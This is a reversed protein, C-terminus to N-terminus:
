RRRRRKRPGVAAFRPRPQADDYKAALAEGHADAAALEAQRLRRLRQWPAETVSGTPKSAGKKSMGM